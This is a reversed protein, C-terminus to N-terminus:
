SLTSSGSTNQPKVDQSAAKVNWCFNREKHLGKGQLVDLWCLLDCRTRKLNAGIQTLGTHSSADQMFDSYFGFHQRFCKEVNSYDAGEVLTLQLM